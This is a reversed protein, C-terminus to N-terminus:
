VTHTSPVFRWASHSCRDPLEQFRRTKSTSAHIRTCSESSHIEHDSAKSLRDRAWGNTSETHREDLLLSDALVPIPNDRVPVREFLATCHSPHGPSLRGSRPNGSYPISAFPPLRSCHSAQRLGPRFRHCDMPISRCPCAFHSFIM